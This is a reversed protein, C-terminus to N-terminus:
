SKGGRKRPRRPAVPVHEPDVTPPSHGVTVTRTEHDVSTVVADPGLAGAITDGGPLGFAEPPGEVGVTTRWTDTPAASKDPGFDRRDYGTKVAWLLSLVEGRPDVDDQCEVSVLTRGDKRAGIKAETWRRVLDDLDDSM